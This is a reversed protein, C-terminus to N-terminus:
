PNAKNQAAEIVQQSIDVTLPLPTFLVAREDTNVVLQLKMNLAVQTVAAEVRKHLVDMIEAEAQAVLKQAEARFKLGREMADRLESQRKELINKSFTKQGVLFDAYMQQFAAENHRTEAAYEDHIRKIQAQAEAYEPLQTVVAKYSLKGYLPAPAPAAAIYEAQAMAPLTVCAAILAIATSFFAKKFM